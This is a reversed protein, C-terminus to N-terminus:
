APSGGSFPTFGVKSPCPDRRQLVLRSVAARDEPVAAAAEEQEVWRDWADHFEKHGSRWSEEQQQAAKWEEEARNAEERAHTRASREARPEEYAPEEWAAPPARDYRGDDREYRLPATRKTTLLGVPSQISTCNLLSLDGSM